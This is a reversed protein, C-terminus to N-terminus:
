AAGHNLLIGRVLVLAGYMPTLATGYLPKSLEPCCDCRVHCAQLDASRQEAGTEGGAGLGPLGSM